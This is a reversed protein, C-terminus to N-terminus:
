KEQTVLSIEKRQEDGMEDFHWEKRFLSPPIERDNFPIGGQYALRKMMVEEHFARHIDRLRDLHFKPRSVNSGLAM